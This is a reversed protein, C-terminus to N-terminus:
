PRQLRINDSTISSSSFNIEFLKSLDCTKLSSLQDLNSAQILENDRLDLDTLRQSCTTLLLIAPNLLCM